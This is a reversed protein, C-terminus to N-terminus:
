VWGRLWQSDDRLEKWHMRRTTKSHVAELEIWEIQGGEIEPVVVKAVLFHKEKFVPKVATWKSLLLKKPQISTMQPYVNHKFAM